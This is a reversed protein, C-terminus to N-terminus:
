VSQCIGCATCNACGGFSVKLKAATDAAGSKKGQVSAGSVGDTGQTRAGGNVGPAGQPRQGRAPMTSVSLAVSGAFAAAAAVPLLAAPVTAGGSKFSLAGKVPCASVCERCGLCEGSTVTKVKAVEINM